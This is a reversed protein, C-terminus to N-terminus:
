LYNKTLHDGLRLSLQCITFTPNAHGSSAFVSSGIVFLNKSNHVKLNSDVVSNNPLGMRTGGMHHNGGYLGDPFKLNDELLENNIAISGLNNEVFYKSLYELFISLNKKTGIGFNSKVKIRPVGIDDFSNKSLMIENEYLANQEWASFFRIGSCKEKQKLFNLINEGIKPSICLLDRIIEKNKSINQYETVRVACNNVNKDEMFKNTPSFFYKNNTEYNISFNKKIDAFKALGVGCPSHPHLLFYKGVTETLFNLNKKYKNNLLIRTNEIAGCGLILNKVKIKSYDKKKSNFVEIETIVNDKEFINFVCTNLVINIYKSNKMENIITESNIRLTNESRKFNVLKIYPNILEDDLFPEKFNLIKYAEKEYNKIDDKKIPWDKFDYDDLTRCLGSWRGSTGGFQRLRSNALSIISNNGIVKGKFFNQSENSYEMDGAEIMLSSIKKEELKRALSYAAPGTGVIFFKINDLNLTDLNVFM